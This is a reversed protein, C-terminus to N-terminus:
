RQMTGSLARRHAVPKAIADLVNERAEYKTSCRSFAAPVGPITAIWSGDSGREDRLTREPPM